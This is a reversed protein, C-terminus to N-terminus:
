TGDNGAAMARVVDVKGIICIIKGDEIVPIPAVNKESMITAIESLSADPGLTIVEDTCIDGVETAAMRRMEDLLRGPKEIHIIADFIRFVTPIHLRADKRILDKETVMGVLSGDVDIVPAGSIRHEALIKALEEITTEPKVTVVTRTMIDRAKM